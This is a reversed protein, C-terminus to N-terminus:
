ESLASLISNLNAVAQRNAKKPESDDLLYLTGRIGDKMAINQAELKKNSEIWELSCSNLLGKINEIDDEKGKHCGSIMIVFDKLEELKKILSAQAEFLSSISEVSSLIQDTREKRDSHTDNALCCIITLERDLKEVAQATPDKNM